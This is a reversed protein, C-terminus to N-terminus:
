WSELNACPQSQNKKEKQFTVKSDKLFYFFNGKKAWQQKSLSFEVKGLISVGDISEWFM